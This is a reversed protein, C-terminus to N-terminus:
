AKSPAALALPLPMDALSNELATMVPNERARLGRATFIYSTAAKDDYEAYLDITIEVVAEPDNSLEAVVPDVLYKPIYLTASEKTVGNAGTGKFQGLLGFETRAPRDGDAKAMYPRVGNAYGIFRALFHPEDKNALVIGQITGKDYGLEGISLKKAIEFGPTAQTQKTAM